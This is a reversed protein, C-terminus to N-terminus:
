QVAEVRFFRYGGTPFDVHGVGNGDTTITTGDLTGITEPTAVPTVTFPFGDALDQSGTITYATQPEGKFTLHFDTGNSQVATIRFDVPLKGFLAVNDVVAQQFTASPNAANLVLYLSGAATPGTTVAFGQKLHESTGTVVNFSSGVMTATAPNFSALPDASLYVSATLTGTFAQGPRALYDLVVTYPSDPVAEVGFAMVIAAGNGGNGTQFFLHRDGNGGPSAEVGGGGFLTGSLLRSNQEALAAANPGSSTAPTQFDEFFIRPFTFTTPNTGQQFEQLNTFSDGDPNGNPGNFPNGTGNDNPDLGHATEYSDTLGDGDSDANLPNTGGTIEAGDSLGDGDTDALFLNTGATIEAGDSLGDDDSDADLPDSGTDTAGVFVHTNTEVEDALGDNDSDADRPDTGRQFEQLNSLGDGDPNGSAGNDPNISGNDNPDLGHATEWQDDLGDGDIDNLAATTVIVNDIIPQQFASASSQADLVLYLNGSAAASLDFTFSQALQNTTGTTVSATTGIQTATAPNFAALTATSHYLKANLVETYSATGGKAFYDLTVTYRTGTAAPAFLSLAVTSDNGGNGTQFFLARSGSVGTEVGAGGFLPGSLLRANQESLAAATAGSSAAPTDFNESYIQAATLHAAFPGLLLVGIIHFSLNPKM